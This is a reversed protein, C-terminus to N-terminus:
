INMQNWSCSRSKFFQSVLSILTPAQHFMRTFLLKVSWGYKTSIILGVWLKKTKTKTKNTNVLCSVESPEPGRKEKLNLDDM